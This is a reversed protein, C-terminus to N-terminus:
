YQVCDTRNTKLYTIKNETYPPKPQLSLHTSCAYRNVSSALLPFRIEKCQLKLNHVVMYTRVLAKSQQDMEGFWFIWKNKHTHNNRQTYIYTGYEHKTGLSGLHPILDPKSGGHIHQFCFRPRKCSCYTRLHQSMERAGLQLYLVM